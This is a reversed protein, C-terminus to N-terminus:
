PETNSSQFGYAMRLGSVSPEWTASKAFSRCRVRAARHCLGVLFVTSGCYYRCLRDEQACSYANSAAWLCNRYHNGQPCNTRRYKRTTDIGVDALGEPTKAQRIGNEDTLIEVDQSSGSFKLGAPTALAASPTDARIFLTGARWQGFPGAGLGMRISLSDLVTFASGFGTTSPCTGGTCGCCEVKFDVSATQTDTYTPDTASAVVTFTVHYLGAEANKFTAVAGSNGCTSMNGDDHIIVCDWNTSWSSFSWENTEYACDKEHWKKGAVASVSVSASVTGGACGNGPDSTSLSFSPNVDNTWQTTVCPNDAAHLSGALPACALAIALVLRLTANM